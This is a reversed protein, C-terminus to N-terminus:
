QDNHPDEQSLSGIRMCKNQLDSGLATHMVAGVPNVCVNMGPANAYLNNCGGVGRRKDNHHQVKTQATAGAGGTTISLLRVWIGGESCSTGLAGDCGLSAIGAAAVAATTANGRTRQGHADQDAQHACRETRVVGHLAQHFRCKRHAHMCVQKDTRM